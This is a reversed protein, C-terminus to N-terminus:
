LRVSYLSRGATVYLTRSDRSLECNSPPEPIRIFGRFQGTPSAVHIGKAYPVTLYLTGNPHVALGDGGTNAATGTPGLLKLFRRGPGLRGSSPVPYSWVDFTGYPMVYLTTEDPSLAIGNPNRLSQILRTTRGNRATYYVGEVPQHRQRQFDPDTFYVGGSRDSVLDNPSNFRQGNLREAFPKVAKTKVDIAAVRGAGAQCALLRGQHDFALGNANRTDKLFTSLRGSADRRLIRSTPVDTFYLDGNAAVVPGETFRFGTHLRTVAPLQSGASLVLLAALM